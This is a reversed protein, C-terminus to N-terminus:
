DHGIVILPNEKKKKLWQATAFAVRAVNQVTFDQAIIARWGDTGFRIKQM